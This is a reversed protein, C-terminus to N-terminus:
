TSVIWVTMCQADDNDVDDDVDDEDENYVVGERENVLRTM